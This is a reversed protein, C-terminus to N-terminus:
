KKLEADKKEKEAREEALNALHKDNELVGLFKTKTIAIIEWDETSGKYVCEHIATRAAADSSAQILHEHTRLKTKIKTGGKRTKVEVDETIQVKVKFFDDVNAGENFCIEGYKPTKIADVIIKRNACELEKTIRTQAQIFDLAEVVYSEKHKVPFGKENQASYSINVEKWFGSRNRYNTEM